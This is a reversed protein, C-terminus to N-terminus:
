PRASWHISIGGGLFRQVRSPRFGSLELMESYKENSLFTRLSRPIYTYISPKGHLILGWVGGQFYLWGIFLERWLPNAPQFFDLTVIKGGPKLVRRIEGLAKSLETFNRVGYGIFVADFSGDAFPLSHADACTRSPLDPAERLMGATLDASVSTAGQEAALRSFDGTGCALDLIRARHPLSAERLAVRKWNLDMGYSFVRTIFDYRPAITEFM